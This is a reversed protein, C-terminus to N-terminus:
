ACYRRFRLLVKLNEWRCIYATHGEIDIKTRWPGLKLATGVWFWGCVNSAAVVRICTAVTRSMFEFLTRRMYRNFTPWVLTPRILLAGDSVVMDM